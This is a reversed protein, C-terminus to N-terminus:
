DKDQEIGKRILEKLQTALPKSNDIQEIIDKDTQKNLRVLVRIVSETDYKRQAAYNTRKEYERQIENKTKAM